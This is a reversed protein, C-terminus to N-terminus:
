LFFNRTRFSLIEVVQEGKNRGDFKLIKFSQNLRCVKFREIGERYGVELDYSKQGLAGVLVCLCIEKIQGIDFLFLGSNKRGIIEEM